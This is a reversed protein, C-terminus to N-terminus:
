EFAFKLASQSADTGAWAQAALRPAAPRSEVPTTLAVTPGIESNSVPWCITGPEVLTHATVSEPCTGNEHSGAGAGPVVFSHGAGAVESVTSSSKLVPSNM